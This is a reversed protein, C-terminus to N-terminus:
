EEAATPRPALLSAVLPFVLVTLAGGAVLLSAGADSLLGAQTAVSTVAVIIPLGTASYLMLQSRERWTELGSGTNSFTERLFVPLGRALLILPVLAILAVPHQAVVSLDVAMGSVVFFVPIFVTYGIINLQSEFTNRMDAAVTQRLILGAAFAGLVVDLEFVAAVAMLLALMLVVLRLVAQNTPGASARISRQSWPALFAVTRPVFAVLVAILFFAILISISAWTSRTSLLVAMAIIPGVEGMAGHVLVSNGLKTGILNQQKLIPMLTGLATSTLAIAFITAPGTDTFGTLAWAGAFSAALCILWTIGASAGQRSRLETPNIEFGALLFLFGLGLEAVLAIGPGDTVLGFASPGLLMGGALLFVVAPIRNRTLHSLLPALTAVAMIWAFRTLSDALTTPEAALVMLHTGPDVTIM